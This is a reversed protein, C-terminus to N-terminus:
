CPPVTEPDQGPDAGAPRSAGINKYRFCSFRLFVSFFLSEIRIIKYIPYIDRKESDSLGSGELVEETLEEPFVEPWDTLHRQALERCFFPRMEKKLQALKTDRYVITDNSWLTRYVIEGLLCKEEDTLDHHRSSFSSIEDMLGFKEGKQDKRIISSMM